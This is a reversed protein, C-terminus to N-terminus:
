KGSRKAGSKKRIDVKLQEEAVDILTNLAKIRLEAEELAKRLAEAEESPPVANKPKPSKKVAGLEANEAKHRLLWGRVTKENRIGHALCAERVSMRGEEVASIINRKQHRSYSKRKVNAHYHASGHERMWIGLTSKGLGYIRRAEERPLGGEVEGVIKAVLRRDFHRTGSKRGVYDGDKKEEM